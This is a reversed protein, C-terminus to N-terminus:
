HYLEGLPFCTTVANIVNCNGKGGGREWRKRTMLPLVSTAPIVSFPRQGPLWPPPLSPDRGKLAPLQHGEAPPQRVRRSGLGSARGAAPRPCAAEPTHLGFSCSAAPRGAEPSDALRTSVAGSLTGISLMRLPPSYKLRGTHTQARPPERCHSHGSPLLSGELLTPLLSLFVGRSDRGARSEGGRLLRPSSARGEMARGSRRCCSLM